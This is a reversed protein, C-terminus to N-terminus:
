DMKTASPSPKPVYLLLNFSPFVATIGFSATWTQAHPNCKNHLCTTPLGLNVLSMILQSEASPAFPHQWFARPCIQPCNELARPSLTASLKAIRYNDGLLWSSNLYDTTMRTLISQFIKTTSLVLYVPLYFWKHGEWCCKRSFFKLVGAWSSELINGRKTCSNSVLFKLGYIYKGFSPCKLWKISNISHQSVAFWFIRVNEYSYTPCFLPCLTSTVSRGRTEYSIVKCKRKTKAIVM